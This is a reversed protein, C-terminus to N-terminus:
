QKATAKQVNFHDALSWVWLWCQSCALLVCVLLDCVVLFLDQKGLLDLRLASEPHSWLILTPGAWM